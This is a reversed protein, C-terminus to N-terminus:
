MVKVLYHRMISKDLCKRDPLELPMEKIIKLHIESQPLSLSPIDSIFFENSQIQKFIVLIALDNTKNYKSLFACNTKNSGNFVTNYFVSKWETM